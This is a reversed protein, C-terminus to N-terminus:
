FDSLDSYLSIPDNPKQVMGFDLLTFMQTGIRKSRLYATYISFSKGSFVQSPVKQFEIADLALCARTSYRRSFVLNLNEIRKKEIGLTQQVLVSM